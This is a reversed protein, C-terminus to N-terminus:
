RSLNAAQDHPCKEGSVVECVAKLISKEPVISKEASKCLWDRLTQDDLQKETWGFTNAAVLVDHGEDKTKVLIRYAQKRVEWCEAEVAKSNIGISKYVEIRDLLACYKDRMEPLTFWSTDM